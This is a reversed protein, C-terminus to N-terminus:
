AYAPQEADIELWEDVMREIIPNSASIDAEAMMQIADTRGVNAYLAELAMTLLSRTTADTFVATHQDLDAIFSVLTTPAMHFFAEAATINHANTSM